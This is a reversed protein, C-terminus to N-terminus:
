QPVAEGPLRSAEGQMSTMNFIAVAGLAMTIAIVLGFGVGIKAALIRNSM